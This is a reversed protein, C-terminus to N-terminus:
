RGAKSIEESSLIKDNNSDLRDFARTPASDWEDQSVVGDDNADVRAFARNAFRKVREDLATTFEAPDLGGSANADITRFIGSRTALFEDHTVVGDNNLDATSLLASADMSGQAQSPSACAVIAALCYFAPILQTYKM